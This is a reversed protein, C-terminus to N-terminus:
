DKCYFQPFNLPYQPIGKRTYAQSIIKGIMFRHPPKLIVSNMHVAAHVENDIETMLIEINVCNGLFFVKFRKESIFWHVRLELTGRRSLIITNKPPLLCPSTKQGVKEM